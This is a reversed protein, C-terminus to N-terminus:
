TQRTTTQELPGVTVIGDRPLRTIQWPYPLGELYNALGLLSYTNDWYVDGASGFETDKSKVRRICHGEDAVWPRFFSVLVYRPQVRIARNILEWYGRCHEAVACALVLDFDGIVKLLDLNLASFDAEMFAAAPFRQRGEAIARPNKDIGLYRNVLHSAYGYGGGIELMSEIRHDAIFKEIWTWLERHSDRKRNYWDTGATWAKGSMTEAGRIDGGVEAM